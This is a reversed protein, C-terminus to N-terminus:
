GFAVPSNSKPKGNYLLKLSMPQGKIVQEGQISM